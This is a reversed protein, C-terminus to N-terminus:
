FIYKSILSFMNMYLCINSLNFRLMLCHLTNSDQHYSDSVTADSWVSTGAAFMGPEIIAVKVGFKMMEMRLSDSVTELAHKAVAYNSLRNLCLRGHVSTINM